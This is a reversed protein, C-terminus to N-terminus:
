PSPKIFKQTASKITGALGLTHFVLKKGKYNNILCLAGRVKEEDGRNCQLIGKLHFYDKKSNNSNLDWSRTVWLRFKSTECEGHFKLCSEWIMFILDDRPLQIQSIAEFALYRKDGRLTPPLIKLKM